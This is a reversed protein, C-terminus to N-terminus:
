YFLFMSHSNITIDKYSMEHLLLNQRYVTQLYLIM